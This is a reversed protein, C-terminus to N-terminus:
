PDPPAPPATPGNYVGGLRLLLRPREVTVETVKWVTGAWRIYSIAFFHEEAYADAIIEISNQVTIDDNLNETERLQRSNKKLEGRYTKEIMPTVWNGSNAPIEVSEGDVVYGVESRFKAM